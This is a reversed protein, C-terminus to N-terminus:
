LREIEKKKCSNKIPLISFPFGITGPLYNALRLQRMGTPGLGM